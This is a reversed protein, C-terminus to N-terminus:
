NQLRLDDIPLDKLLPEEPLRREKVIPKPIGPGGYYGLSQLLLHPPDHLVLASRSFRLLTEMLLSAVRFLGSTGTKSSPAMAAAPCPTIKGTKPKSSELAM